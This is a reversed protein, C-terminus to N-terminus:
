HEAERGLRKNLMSRIPIYYNPDADNVTLRRAKVVNRQVEQTLAATDNRQRAGQALDLGRNLTQVESYFALLAEMEHESVAADALLPPFSREFAM